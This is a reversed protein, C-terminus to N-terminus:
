GLIAGAIGCCLVVLWAPLQRSYLLWFAVFALLLDSFGHIGSTLVPDVFAAALLGVVGANVGLLARRVVAYRRLRDWYPLIGILLLLSPLFIALLCVLGSVMRGYGSGMAAGLYASFTFLPGPVAQAAGYGALFLDKSLWGKEVVEAQLLPLVVHGGGFVLAGARFFSDVLELYHQGAVVFPLGFLLLVFLLNSVVAQRHSGAFMQQHDSTPSVSPLFLWGCIATLFLAILQGSIGSLLFAILAACLALLRRAFDPCLQRAMGVLAQAVVAVAAIKLGQLWGGSLASPGSAGVGYAFLMLIFASPLTFGAWAAVAGRLGAKSLGIGMGVQSSAPGPLFQCLAVLDAYIHDELWHRREVFEHRFYGLHAVPGGFSTLGLRLFILFIQWIPTQLAEETKAM